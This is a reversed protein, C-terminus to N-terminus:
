PEGPRMPQRLERRGEIHIILLEELCQVGIICISSYVIDSLLADPVTASNQGETNWVPQALLLCISHGGNPPLRLARVQYFTFM